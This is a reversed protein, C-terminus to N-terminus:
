EEAAERADQAKLVENILARVYPEVIQSFSAELRREIESNISIGSRRAAKELNARLSERIRLKFQIIQDKERKVM